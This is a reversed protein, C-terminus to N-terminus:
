TSLEQQQPWVDAMKFTASGANLEYPVSPLKTVPKVDPFRSESLNKVLHRIQREMRRMAHSFEDLRPDIRSHYLQIIGDRGVRKVLRLFAQADMPGRANNCAFCAAVLNDMADSGGQSVPIIHDRTCTNLKEPALTMIVHCYFCLGGERLFLQQRQKFIRSQSKVIHPM